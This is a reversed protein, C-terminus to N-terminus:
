QWCGATPTKQGLYNITLTGCGRWAQSSVATATITYTTNTRSLTCPYYITCAGASLVNPYTNNLTYEREMRQAEELLRMQADVMRAKRVYDVYSPFAIAGMIAVIAAVVM